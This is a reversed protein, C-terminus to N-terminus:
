TCPLFFIFCSCTSTPLRRNGPTKMVSCSGPGVDLLRRVSAGEGLFFALSLSMQPVCNVDACCLRRTEKGLNKQPYSADTWPSYTLYISGHMAPLKHLQAMLGTCALAHLLVKWVSLFHFHLPFSLPIFYVSHLCCLIAAFWFCHPCHYHCCHSHGFFCYTQILLLVIKCVNGAKQEDRQWWQM